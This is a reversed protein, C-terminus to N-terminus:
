PTGPNRRRNQWPSVGPGAREKLANIFAAGVILYAWAFYRNEPTPFLVFRALAALGAAALIHRYISSRPLWHWAALGLLLWITTEQGGILALGHAAAHLYESITLRPAIETPSRGGIFSYHFLVRWGYNGAFHNIALVSAGAVAALVVAQLM